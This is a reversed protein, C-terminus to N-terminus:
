KRDDQGLEQADILEKAKHVAIEEGQIETLIWNAQDIFVNYRGVNGAPVVEVQWGRYLFSNMKPEGTSRAKRVKSGVHAAM